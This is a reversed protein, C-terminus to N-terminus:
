LRSEVIQVKDFQVQGDRKRDGLVIEVIYRHNKLLTKCVMDQDTFYTLLCTNFGSKDEDQYGGEAMMTVAHVQALFHISGVGWQLWSETTFELSPLSLQLTSIIIFVRALLVTAQSTDKMVKM